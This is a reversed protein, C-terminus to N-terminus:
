PSTFPCRPHRVGKGLIQQYTKCRGAVQIAEALDAKAQQLEQLAADLRQQAAEREESASHELDECRAELEACKSRLREIETQLESPAAGSQAQLLLLLLLSTLFISIFHPEV